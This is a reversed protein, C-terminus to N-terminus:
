NNLAGQEIWCTILSIQEYNLKGIRPMKEPDSPPLTIRRKVETAHNQFNQLVTWNLDGGLDGNHCGTFACNSNVIPKIDDNFSVTRFDDCSVNVPGELDHSVCATFLLSTFFLIAILPRVIICSQTM